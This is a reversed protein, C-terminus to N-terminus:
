GHNRLSWGSGRPNSSATCLSNKWPQSCVASDLYLSRPIPHDLRHALFIWRCTPQRGGADRARVCSVTVAKTRELWTSLCLGLKLSQARSITALRCLSHPCSECSYSIVVPPYLQLKIWQPVNAALTLIVGASPAKVIDDEVNRSIECTLM